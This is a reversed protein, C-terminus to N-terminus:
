ENKFVGITDAKYIDFDVETETQYLFKIIRKSLPFYPTSSEPNIDIEIVYQLRTELNLERKLKVIEEAKPELLKIIDETPTELDIENGVNIQLKWSTSKPVPNKKLRVSSPKINLEKTIKEIDFYDGNFSFYVYNNCSNGSYTLKQFSM